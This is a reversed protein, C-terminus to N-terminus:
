EGTERARERDLQAEANATLRDLVALLRDIAPTGVGETLVANRRLAEEALVDHAAKGRPTVTLLTERRGTERSREVLGAEELRKVTRGSQSRDRGVIANLLALPLPARQTIHSLILWDFNTLGILRKYALAASRQVYVFLTILAPTVLGRLAADVAAPAIDFGLPGEEDGAASPGAALAKEIALLATASETLKAITALFDAIAEEAIGEVLEGNRQEALRAFEAARAQGAKTLTLPDRVGMRRLVGAETLRRVARSIQAKDHGTLTILGTSTIPAEGVAMMLRRDLEPLGIERGYRLEASARLLRMLRWLRASILRRWLVADEPQKGLSAAFGDIMADLGLEFSIACRSLRDEGNRVAAEQEDLTWGLTYRGIALLVNVAKERAFGASVMPEVLRELTEPEFSDGPRFGALLRAGDRYRQMVGRLALARDRVWDRWSEGPQPSTWAEALLTEAMRDCLQQKNAFHHYLTAGQVDVRAALARMTLADLGEEAMLELAAKAIRARHLPM